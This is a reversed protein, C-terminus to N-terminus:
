VQGAPVPPPRFQPPLLTTLPINLVGHTQVKEEETALIHNMFAQGAENRSGPNIRHDPNEANLFRLLAKAVKRRQYKAEIRIDIIMIDDHDYYYLLAGVHEGSERDTAIYVGGKPKSRYEHTIDAWSSIETEHM